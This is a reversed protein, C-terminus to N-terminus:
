FVFMSRRSRYKTLGWGAISVVCFQIKRTSPFTTDSSSGSCPLFKHVWDQEQPTEKQLMITRNEFYQLLSDPMEEPPLIMDAQGTNIASRPMGDYKSTSESQVLILGDHSKIDKLGVTGDSGTGSLIIGVSMNKKDAALSRFFFDIPLYINKDIPDLLQLRSNYLSVEKHPPIVYVRDPQIQDGDKAKEVPASTNKQLLEPLMSTQDPSQHVLVIYAMNSDPRIHSFFTTLAELGGASAGLGVVPFDRDESGSNKALASQQSENEPSDAGAAKESKDNEM